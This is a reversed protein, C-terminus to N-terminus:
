LLSDLTAHKPYVFQVQPRKAEREIGLESFAHHMLPRLSALDMGILSSSKYASECIYCGDQVSRWFSDASRHHTRFVWRPNLKDPDRTKPLLDLLFPRPSFFEKKMLRPLTEYLTTFCTDCIM